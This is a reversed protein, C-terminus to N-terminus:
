RRTNIAYLSKFVATVGAAVLILPLTGIYGMDWLMRALLLGGGIFMIGFILGLDFKSNSSKKVEPPNNKEWLRLEELIYKEDTTSIEMRQMYRHVAQYGDGRSLIKKCYAAIEIRSKEM